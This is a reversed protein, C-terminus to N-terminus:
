VGRLHPARRLLRHQSFVNAQRKRNGHNRPPLLINSSRRNAPRPNPLRRGTQPAILILRQTPHPPLLCSLNPIANSPSLPIRVHRTVFPPLEGGFLKINSLGVPLLVSALFIVKEVGKKGEGGEKRRQKGSLKELAQSTPIGGYSHCLIVVDKGADLLPLVVAEIARADDSMTGPKRTASFPGVSPTTVIHVDIGASRLTSLFPTYLAPPAFSGPVWVLTAM